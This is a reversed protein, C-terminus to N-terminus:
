KRKDPEAESIEFADELATRWKRYAEESSFDGLVAVDRFWSADLPKPPM